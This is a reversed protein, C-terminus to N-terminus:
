SAKAESATAPRFAIHKSGVFTLCLGAASGFVLPIVLMHKLEPAVALAAAYAGLNALGGVGQVAVYILAQRVPGHSTPQRFTFTRNLLWTSFVAVSFSVLRGSIPTFGFLEVLSHLVLYDVSFGAAGVFGFHIFAPDIRRERVGAGIAPRAGAGGLGAPAAPPLLPLASIASLGAAGTILWTIRAQYRAFPGSLAGCVFANILVAGMMLALLTILRARDDSWRRANGKFVSALDPRCLRWIVTLTGLIALAGYLWQSGTETMRPACGWHDRGCDAAHNILWPLNTTSWYASTLFYHPNKIPDDLFVMFLQEGWNTLSAVVQTLPDYLWRARLAEEREMQLRNEYTTVNFIGKRRDDSWLM